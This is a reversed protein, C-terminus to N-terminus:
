LGAPILNPMEWTQWSFIPVLLTRNTTLVIATNLSVTEGSEGPLTFFADTRDVDDTV